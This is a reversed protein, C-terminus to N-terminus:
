RGPDGAGAFAGRPRRSPLAPGFPSAFPYVDPTVAVETTFVLPAGSPGPFTLEVFWATWGGAPPSIDATYVGATGELPTSSWAAGITQLRFDRASPNGAKWLAVKTPADVARVVMTGATKDIRWYFRPRPYNQIVARYWAVLNAIAEPSSMGHDTNPVFRLYREGPLGSFYYRPSDPPFFQDGTSNAQYSPLALRNRYLYPDEIDLLAAMRPTGFWNMIGAAVYDQVAPAWFGYARFQAEFVQQVNLTDIVIPAIAIVRPDVAATSWTTWGRKSAGAVVFNKVAVPDPLGALFATVTDMGRVAAKTMPLRAPWSEDGGSLFKAWTYAIIADETRTQAEGAFRLPENPVQGLDALITGAGAALALTTIDPTPPSSSNSGGDILLLATTGTVQDPRYITLWHHWEPRDVEAPTRWTQSVMDIQYATLGTYKLTRGLTYRYSPDPAAVYRDLATTDANWARPAAAAALLVLYLFRM